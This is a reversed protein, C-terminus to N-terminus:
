PRRTIVDSRSLNRGGWGRGPKANAATRVWAQCLVRRRPMRNQGQGFLGTGDQGPGALEGLDDSVGSGDTIAVHRVTIM